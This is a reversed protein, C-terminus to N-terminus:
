AEAKEFMETFDKNTYTVIGNAGRVIWDGKSIVDKRGRENKYIMDKTETDYQANRLGLFKKAPAIEGTYQIADVIIPKRKFQM